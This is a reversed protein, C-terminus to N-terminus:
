RILSMFHNFQVVYVSANVGYDDKPNGLVKCPAHMALQLYTRIFVKSVTCKPIGMCVTWDHMVNEIVHATDHSPWSHPNCYKSGCSAGM